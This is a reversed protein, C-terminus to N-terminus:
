RAQVCLCGPEEWQQGVKPWEVLVGQSSQTLVLGDTRDLGGRYLRNVREGYSFTPSAGIRLVLGRLTSLMANM